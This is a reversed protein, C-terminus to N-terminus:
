EALERHSSDDTYIQVPMQVQPFKANDKDLRRTVAVLCAETQLQKPVLVEMAQGHINRDRGSYIVTAPDVSTDIAAGEVITPKEGQSSGITMLAAIVTILVTRTNM